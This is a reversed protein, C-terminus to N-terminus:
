DLPLPTMFIRGGKEVELISLEDYTLSLLKRERDVQSVTAMARFRDGSPRQPEFYGCLAAQAPKDLCTDSLTLQLADKILSIDKQEAEFHPGGDFPDVRHSYRFGIRSLLHAAGKSNKGVQGIVDQAQAPLLPVYISTIPFLTKIFEKNKRSLMDAEYYDLGTFQRGVADWLASEFRAGLPPLLEALVQNSFFEPRIAMFLFRVYSLLRGFKEKSSRFDKDLVLSGLETPGDFSQCLRLTKHRFFKKLTESYREDLEVAFYYHPSSLTGHKAFIQSTGIVQQGDTLVFLFAKKTTDKEKLSFSRESNKIVEFLEDKNAPLNITNLMSSLTFIDDLDEIKADRIFYKTRNNPSM